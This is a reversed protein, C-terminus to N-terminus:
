GEFMGDKGIRGMRLGIGLDKIVPKCYVEDAM